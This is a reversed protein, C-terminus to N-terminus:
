SESDCIVLFFSGSLGREVLSEALALTLSFALPQASISNGSGPCGERHSFLVPPGCVRSPLDLWTSNLLCPIQLLSM